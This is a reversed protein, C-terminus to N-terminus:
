GLMDWSIGACGLEFGAHGLQDWCIWVCGLGKSMGALGLEDWSTTDKPVPPVPSLKKVHLYRLRALMKGLMGQAWRRATSFGHLSVLFVDPPTPSHRHKPSGSGPLIARCFGRSLTWGAGRPRKKCSARPFTM